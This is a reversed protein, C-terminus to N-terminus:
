GKISGVMVGKVFYKQLFPYLCVIPLITAVLTAMKVSTSTVSKMKDNALEAVGGAILKTSDNERIINMLLTQLPILKPNQVFVAGSYWDNWHGVAVFLAITAFIPLSLPVVIKFYVILDNAGDLKASEELAPPLQQFFARFLIIYWASYISPIIYVWLTNLMHLDKLLLYFPILGGSFFMTILMMINVVQRGRLFKKSLGYAMLSMLFVSLVTGIATRAITILYADIIESRAFIVSYNDLTFVRPWFNVGGRMSDTGNNLSLVVIRWFPFVISFSLLLLLLYNIISFILEGVSKKM